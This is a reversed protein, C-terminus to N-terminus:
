TRLRAASPEPVPGPTGAPEDLLDAPPVEHLNLRRVAPLRLAVALAVLITVCGGLVVSPVTGLLGAATGSEFAGIENSMSVFLHKVASVRGRLADPTIMQELTLRIVVSVNDCVGTLYLCCMSLAMHRSVGFGVIALGFGAVAVILVAIGLVTLWHFPQMAETKALEAADASAADRRFLKWGGLLLFGGFGVLAHALANYTFTWWEYGGLGIAEM